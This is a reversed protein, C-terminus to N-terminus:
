IENTRYTNPKANLWKNLKYEPNMKNEKIEEIKLNILDNTDSYIYDKAEKCHQQQNKSESTGVMRNLRNSVFGILTM